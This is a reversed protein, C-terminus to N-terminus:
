RGGRGQAHSLAAAAEDLHENRHLSRDVWRHNYADVAELLSEPFGALYQDLTEASELAVRAAEHPPVAALLPTMYDNVDIDSQHKYLKGEASTKELTSLVRLDWFALHALLVAVTWHAGVPTRLEAESLSGMQRIRETAVRNREIFSRDVTM